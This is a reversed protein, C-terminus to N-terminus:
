WVKDDEAIQQDLQRRQEPTLSKRHRWAFYNIAAIFAVIALSYLLQFYEM